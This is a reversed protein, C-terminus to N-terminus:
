AEKASDKPYTIEEKNISLRLVGNEGQVELVTAELLAAKVHKGLTGEILVGQKGNSNTSLSTLSKNHKLEISFDHESNEKSNM